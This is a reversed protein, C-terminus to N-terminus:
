SEWHLSSHSIWVRSNSPVASLRALFIFDSNLAPGPALIPYAHLQCPSTPDRSGLRAPVNGPSSRGPVAPPFPQSFAPLSVLTNLLEGEM